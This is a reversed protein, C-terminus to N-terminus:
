LFDSYDIITVPADARGLFYAGEPTRGNIAVEGGSEATEATEATPSPPATPPAETAVPPQTAPVEANASPAAMTETAGAEGTATSVITATAAASTPETEGPAAEQPANTTDPACAVFCLSALLLVIPFAVQKM